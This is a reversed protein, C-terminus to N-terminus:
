GAKWGLHLHRTHAQDSFYGPRPSLDRWPTGVESPRLEAPLQDLWLALERAVVNSVSVARGDITAIDVARGHWHHSVRCGPYDGGGICRSHGTKLSVIGLEHQQSALQMLTLVRADIRGAAIDDKGAPYIQLRPNALVMSILTPSPTTNGAGGTAYGAALELVRDRYATSRNYALIASSVREPDGAGNACLYIAAAHIADLANHPDAIGNGSADIGYSSWTSPIFQMPGVARDYVTDGDYRGRDTDAIRMVGPSGDLAVGIIRPRVSGDPQLQGGGIRGHDSEVKGIAALVSWPLGPCQRQVAGEYMALYAPPIDGRAADSAAPQTQGAAAALVIVPLAVLGCLGATALMALKTIM